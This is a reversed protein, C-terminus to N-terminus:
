QGKRGYETQKKIYSVLHRQGEIHRLMETTTDPGFARDLSIAQLHKLVTKGADTSFCRAYAARLDLAIDPLKSSELETKDGANDREFWSWGTKNDSM